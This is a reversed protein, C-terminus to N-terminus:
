EEVLAAVEALDSVVHHPAPGTHERRAREPDRVARTLWATRLGLAAAGAVDASLSDGVHLTEAPATGLAGLTARFIEARPKRYGVADSVIVADFLWRLGAEELVRLATPSHSFNSCVALRVRGRLRALVEPHHALHTVQARLLRMHTETMRLALAPDAIGLRALVAEFRELTPLERGEATRPARLERDVEFLANAFRELPLDSVARVEEHLVGATSPFTREGVTVLPLGQMDLDVLTDFLDFVVARLPSSM